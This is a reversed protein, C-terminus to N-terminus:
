MVTLATLQNDSVFAIRGAGYTGRKWGGAVPTARHTWANGDSSSAGYLTGAAVAIFQGGGFAVATWTCDRPMVSRIWVNGNVSHACAGDAGVLVFVGNGWCLSTWERGPLVSGCDRWTTGDASTAVSGTSTAIAIFVGNGWCVHSWPETRDTLIQHEVWQVGNVSVAATNDLSIACFVKGFAVATWVSASPMEFHQWVDGDRTFLGNVGTSCLVIHVGNGAAGCQWNASMPLDRGTWTICDVSAAAINSGAAVAIFLGGSYTLVRWYGKVPMPRQIFKFGLPIVFPRSGTHLTPPLGIM